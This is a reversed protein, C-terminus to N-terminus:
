TQEKLSVTCITMTQKPTPETCNYVFRHQGLDIVRKVDGRGFVDIPSEFWM